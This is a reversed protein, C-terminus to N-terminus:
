RDRRTFNVSLNPIGLAVRVAAAAYRQPLVSPASITIVGSEGPELGRVSEVLERYPEARDRLASSSKVAFMGSRLVVGTVLVITVAWAVLNGRRTSLMSWALLIGEVLLLSFGIAALYQYRGALGWTFFSMPVLTAVIWFTFFRVRHNGFAALAVLAIVLFTLAVPGRRGVHLMVLYGVLNRVVHMGFAYHGGTVVYNRSNVTYEIWLYIALLFLHPLYVLASRLFSERSRQRLRSWDLAVMLPLLMVSSEHCFLTASFAVLGGAYWARRGSDIFHLHCILATMYGTATLVTSVAAVWSVADVCGPQVAFVLGAIAWRADRGLLVAFRSVLIANLLHLLVTASHFAVPSRDWAAWGVYFFLDTLPRFFHAHASVDLWGAWRFQGAALLLEFDDEFFFSDLVPRYIALVSAAMTGLLVIRRWADLRFCARLALVWREMRWERGKADAVATSHILESGAQLRNWEVPVEGRSTSRM